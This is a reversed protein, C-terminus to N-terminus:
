KSCHKTLHHLQVVCGYWLLAYKAYWRLNNHSSKNNALLLLPLLVLDLTSWNDTYDYFCGPLFQMSAHEVTEAFLMDGFSNDNTHCSYVTNNLWRFLLVGCYFFSVSAAMDPSMFWDSLIGTNRPHHRVKNLVVMNKKEQHTDNRSGFVQKGLKNEKCHALPTHASVTYILLKSHPFGNHVVSLTLCATLLVPLDKQSHWLSEWVYKWPWVAVSISHIYKWSLEHLHPFDTGSHIHSKYKDYLRFTRTHTNKKRVHIVAMLWVQGSLLGVREFLESHHMPLLMVSLFRPTKWHRCQQRASSHTQMCM